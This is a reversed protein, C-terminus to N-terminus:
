EKRRKKKGAWGSLLGRVKRKTRHLDQIREGLEKEKRSFLKVAMDCCPGLGKNGCGTIRKIEELTLGFEKAKQIFRLREVTEQGYHRFGGESRAAKELLGQKEYFRIAHISIGAKGSVKGITLRNSLEKM